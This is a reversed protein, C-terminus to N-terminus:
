DGSACDDIDPTTPSSLRVIDAKLKDIEELLAANRTNATELETNASTNTEKIAELAGRLEDAEKIAENMAAINEKAAEEYENITSNLMDITTNLKDIEKTLKTIEKNTKASKTVKGVSVTYEDFSYISIRDDRFVNASAESINKFELTVIPTETSFESPLRGSDVIELQNGTISVAKIPNEM